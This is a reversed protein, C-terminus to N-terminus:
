TDELDARVADYEGKHAQYWERNNNAMLLKLYKMIRKADMIRGILVIRRCIYM